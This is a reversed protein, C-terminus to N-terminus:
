QWDRDKWRDHLFQNMTFNEMDKRRKEEERRKMQPSKANKM